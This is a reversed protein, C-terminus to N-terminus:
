PAPLQDTHKGHPTKLMETSLLGAGYGDLAWRYSMGTFPFYNWGYIFGATSIKSQDAIEIQAYGDATFSNDDFVFWGVPLFENEMNNAQLAGTVRFTASTWNATM